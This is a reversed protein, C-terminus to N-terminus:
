IIIYQLYKTRQKPVANSFRQGYIELRDHLLGTYSTAFFIRLRCVNFDRLFTLNGNSAFINNGNFFFFPLRDPTM